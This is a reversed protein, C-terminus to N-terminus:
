GLAADDVTGLDPGDTRFWSAVTEQEATIFRLGTGNTPKAGRLHELDVECQV